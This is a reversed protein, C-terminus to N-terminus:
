DLELRRILDQFRKEGRLGEFAPDVKLWIVRPQREDVAQQLRQLAADNEALGAHLVAWDYSAVYSRSESLEQMRRFIEKAISKKRAAAYAYGLIALFPGSPQETPAVIREIQEIAKGYEGIGLYAQGLYFHMLPYNFQKSEAGLGLEIAKEYDRNLLHAWVLDTNMTASMPDLDLARRQSVIAQECWGRALAYHAFLGHAECSPNLEIAKQIAAETAPWNWDFFLNNAAMIVHAEASLPSLALAREAAPKAETQAQAPPLMAQVGMATFCASLYAWAPAYGPELEIARRLYEIAKKMGAETFFQHWYYRGKLYAAHAEPDIARTNSLRSQQSPTLKIEIRQAISEAVESQVDLLDRLPRDYSQALLQTDTVADVLRINIRVRNGEVLVSGEVALDLQLAQAFDSLSQKVRKYQMSTTRSIVRLSSIHALESILAEQIGDAFYDGEEQGGMSVFPLVALSKIQSETRVEEVSAVFRYGRKPVTEIYRPTQATDGLAKRIVSINFTLNSEEVFTDPWLERILRDKEVLNGNDRVLLLLMSLTKPALPVVLGDKQLRYEDPDLRFPGFLYYNETRKRV